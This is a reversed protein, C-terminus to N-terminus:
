RDPEKVKMDGCVQMSKWLNGCINVMSYCNCNEKERARPLKQLSHPKHVVYLFVLYLYLYVVPSLTLSLFTFQPPKYHPQILDKALIACPIKM